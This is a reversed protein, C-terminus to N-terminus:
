KDFNKLINVINSRDIYCLVCMIWLMPLLYMDAKRRVSKEVDTEPVYRDLADGLKADLAKTPGMQIDVVEGQAYDDSVPESTVPVGKDDTTSPKPASM